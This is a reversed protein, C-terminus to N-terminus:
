KKLYGKLFGIARDKIALSLLMYVGFFIVLSLIFRVYLSEILLSLLYCAILAIVTNIVVVYVQEVQEMLTIGMFRALFACSILVNIITAVLAGWALAMLGYQFTMLIILVSMGKKLMECIFLLHTKGVAKFLNVHLNTVMYGLGAICLVQMLLAMEIWKDTLLIRILDEAAFSLFVVAPVALFALVHLIDLAQRKLLELDDQSRSLIPYLARMTLDSLNYSLYASYGDARNYLGVQVPTYFRGIVLSYLNNYLANVMGTFMMPLGFNILQRFSENSFHVQPRWGTYIFYAITMLVSALLMQGVLAWYALGNYAMFLAVVGAMLSTSVTIMALEKFRLQRQLLSRPVISLANVVLVLGSVRLVKQLNDHHFFDAILPAAFFLLAYLMISVLTSYLFATNEDDRGCERKQILAGELGCEIFVNAIAFFVAQMAVVGYDYPNLLRALVVGVGFQISLVLVQQIGSWLTSRHVDNLM